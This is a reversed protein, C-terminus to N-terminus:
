SLFPVVGPRVWVATDHFVGGGNPYGAQASILTNIGFGGAFNKNPWISEVVVVGRCLGDFARWALSVVGRQNGLSALDGVVLGLDQADLPHILLTPEKELRQSTPTETFSSNLFNRAPAAVLRFPKEETPSDIVDAHDPFDPLGQHAPGQAAWDARFHFKGDAHGFGTLFRAEDGTQACDQWRAKLLADAGEYGSAKLTADMLEWASLTFGPHDAGLRAALDCIVQHNSRCEGLPPVIAQHCQLYTHSGATYLDDHETFMTAPLVIDAYRATDTMFQEHVCLFLDERLLGQRVLASEPAVVAPNCNQMLMAMVPPGDGLDQRDGTLVPGIRSMDLIRVSSDKRDLGEILAKDLGFVGGNGWLAGGGYHAWAGTVSPLCAVAHMNVAGNRSRTFGYGVRLFSKKTSGYLRAFDIITQASVGTIPEAWAPTRSSLHQELGSPDDTFRDMWARDAMGEAFLVHMVACALAGDTGPRLMIHLDAKEATPTRYPDVVVLKAGRQKKARAVWNMVHVQTHVPNGGWIVVVDSEAMERADTGLKNGTAASWGATALATCYTKHQRSYGMVHRLREIGDRQIQGMTGAYYYPWVSEPGYDQAARIFASAITDLAEDWSIPEFQAEGKPGIRRLPTTLRQPHNAREAYRAVKACIVGDTYDQGAAGRVRGIRVGDVVDIDLACVSPCDHPCVSPQVQIEGDAHASSASSVGGDPAHYFPSVPLPPLTM